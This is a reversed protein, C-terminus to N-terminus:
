IPLMKDVFRSMEGASLEEKILFRRVPGLDETFFFGGSSFLRRPKHEVDHAFRAYAKTLGYPSRRLLGGRDYEDIRRECGKAHTKARSVIVRRLAPM